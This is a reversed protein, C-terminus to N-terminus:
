TLDNNIQSLIRKLETGAQSIFGSNDIVYDAARRKTEIPLQSSERSRFEEENWGRSKAVRGFRQEYPVDLFVVQDCLDRWDAELLVAADLIITDFANSARAEEVQKQLNQRIQPHVISQLDALARRNGCSSGFVERSLIARDVQGQEDFVPQQFRQHIQEKVYPLKLVEHGVRDGDLVVVNRKGSIWRALASKGSGVGGVLAVVPVFRRGLM